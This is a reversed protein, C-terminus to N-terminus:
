DAAKIKSLGIDMEVRGGACQPSGDGDPALKKILEVASVASDDSRISYCVNVKDTRPSFKLTCTMTVLVGHRKRLMEHTMNILEPADTVAVATGNALKFTSSLDSVRTNVIEYQASVIKKGADVIEEMTIRGEFFKLFAAYIGRQQDAGLQTLGAVVVQTSELNKGTHRDILMAIMPAFVTRVCLDFTRGDLSNEDIYKLVQEVPSLTHSPKIVVVEYYDALKEADPWYTGIMLLTIDSSPTDSGAVDVINERMKKLTSEKASEITYILSVVGGAMSLLAAAGAEPPMTRVFFVVTTM